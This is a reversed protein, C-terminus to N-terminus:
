KRSTTMDLEIMVCAHQPVNELEFNTEISKTFRRMTYLRDAAGNRDHFTHQCIGDDFNTVPGICRMM